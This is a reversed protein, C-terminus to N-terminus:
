GRGGEERARRRRREERRRTLLRAKGLLAAAFLLLAQLRLAQQGLLPRSGALLLRQGGLLLGAVELANHLLPALLFTAQALGLGLSFHDLVVRVDEVHELPCIHSHVALFWCVSRGERPGLLFSFHFSFGFFFIFVLITPLRRSLCALRGRKKAAGRRCLVVFM